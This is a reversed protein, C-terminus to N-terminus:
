FDTASRGDPPSFIRGRWSGAHVPDGSRGVIPTFAAHHPEGTQEQGRTSRMLIAFDAPTLGRIHPVGSRWDEIYATELLRELRGVVWDAEEPQDEFLHIRYDRSGPPEESRANKEIRLPGLVQAILHESSHVIAPSSRFNEPLTHRSADPYRDQFTLINSVDAGRWAYIAQDDDGVVFLSESGDHLLQILREQAHNVDQYEDVLLHRLSQTAQLADPDDRELAEVVLRIMLSFDIFQDRDLLQQLGQIVRGIQPEATEIDALDLLEDNATKWANSVERTTQFYGANRARRLASLNLQPYRSTLYLVFRNDDLVDFQRYKADMRSLLDYCYSHITGIYMRGIVIPDIGVAELARKVQLKISEAAKDTFTFAVIESAQVGNVLLWAIRYGLTRSKGSGACALTLIEAADDTAADRQEATLRENFVQHMENM